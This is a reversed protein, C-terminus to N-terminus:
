WISFWLSRAWRLVPFQSNTHRFRVQVTRGVQCFNPYDKQLEDPALAVRIRAARGQSEPLIAALAVEEVAASSGRVSVVAGKIIESRGHLRVEASQGPKIEDYNVESVLIDVFLDRCDLIRMLDNGVVVNSGEVVSNRWIVGDFPMRIEAEQLTDNRARELELQKQLQLIHATESTERTQLNTLQITVEDMRQQSYPVDNRGMGVFINERLAELQWMLQGLEARAIHGTSIAAVSTARALQVSSGAVIGTLGLTQKRSLDAEAAVKHGEASDIRHKRITIEHGISQITARQYKELREQLNKRLLALETHQTRLAGQREQAAHVDAGLQAEATQTIRGNRLTFIHADM